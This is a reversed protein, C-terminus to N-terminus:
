DESVEAKPAEIGLAAFIEKAVLLSVGPQARAVERVRAADFVGPKMQFRLMPQSPASGDSTEDGESVTKDPELGLQLRLRMLSPASTDGWGMAGVWLRRVESKGYQTLVPSLADIQRVGLTGTDLGKLADKIPQEKTMRYAHQRSVKVMRLWASWSRCSKGTDPDMTHRWSETEWALQIAPAAYHFYTTMTKKSMAELLVGAAYIRKECASIIAAPEGLRPLDEQLAQSVVKPISVKPMPAEAQESQPTPEAGSAEIEDRTVEIPGEGSPPLMGRRSPGDVPAGASAGIVVGKRM